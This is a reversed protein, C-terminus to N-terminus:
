FVGTDPHALPLFVKCDAFPAKCGDCRGIAGRDLPPRMAKAYDHRRADFKSECLGCLCVTRGLAVKDAIFGGATRGSRRGQSALALTRRRATDEKMLYM